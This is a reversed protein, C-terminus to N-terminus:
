PRGEGDAARVTALYADQLNAEVESFGCVPLGQSLLHALLAHWDNPDRRMAVVAHVEGSEIIRVGPAVCAELSARLTGSPAALTIRLRAEADPTSAAARHEVVRGARLVLM